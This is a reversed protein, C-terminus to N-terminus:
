TPSPGSCPPCWSRLPWTSKRLVLLERKLRHIQQLTDLDPHTVLEDELGGPDGSIRELILFYNDVIVDM